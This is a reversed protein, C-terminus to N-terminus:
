DLRATRKPAPAPIMNARAMRNFGWIWGKHIKKPTKSNTKSTTPINLNGAANM